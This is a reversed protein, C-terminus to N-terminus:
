INFLFLAWIQASKKNLIQISISIFKKQTLIRYCEDIDSESLLLKLKIEGGGIILLQVVIEEKSSGSAKSSM